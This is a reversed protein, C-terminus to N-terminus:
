ATVLEGRPAQANTQAECIIKLTRLIGDDTFIAKTRVIVDDISLVGQLMGSEDVVPLRRVREKAMTDLARHLDEEPSCVSPSPRMIEGLPVDAPRRNQTGLAIFLDRDTVIGVVRGGDAIVPLSGCNKNWMVEAAQAANMELSAATVERTMIEQVQV